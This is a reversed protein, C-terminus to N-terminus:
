GAPKGKASRRAEQREDRRRAKAAEEREVQRERSRTQMNRLIDRYWGAFGGAFMGLVLTEVMVYVGVTAMDSITTDGFAGTAGIAILLLILLGTFLGVIAGVLYSARPALFGAIFYTFLALPNFFWQFYLGVYPQFDAPVSDFGVALLFGVLSLIFPLWLLRRTRFMDPLGRLDGRIDPFKFLSGRPRRAPTDNEVEEGGDEPEQEAALEAREQERTRRRAESRSTNKARAM